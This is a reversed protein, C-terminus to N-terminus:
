PLEVPAGANDEVRAALSFGSFTASPAGSVTAATPTASTIVCRRMVISRFSWDAGSAEQLIVDFKSGKLAIATLQAAVDGIARVTMSFTMVEPAYIVGCHSLELSHLAEASLAFTPTFSDIPTITVTTGAEDQYSVALRTNWDPM